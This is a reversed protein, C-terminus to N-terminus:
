ISDIKMSAQILNMLHLKMKNTKIHTSVIKIQQNSERNDVLFLKMM